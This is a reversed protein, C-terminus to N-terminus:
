NWLDKDKLFKAELMYEFQKKQRPTLEHDVYSDIIMQLIDYMKSEEVFSSLFNLEDYVFRPIRITKTPANRAVSLNEKLDTLTKKPSKRKMAAENLEVNLVSEESDVVIEDKKPTSPTKVTYGFAEKQDPKLVPKAPQLTKKKKILAGKENSM